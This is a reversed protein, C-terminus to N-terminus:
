LNRNNFIQCHLFMWVILLGFTDQSPDLPRIYTFIKWSALMQGSIGKMDSLHTELDPILPEGTEQYAANGSTPYAM